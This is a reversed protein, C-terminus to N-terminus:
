ILLQILRPFPLIVPSITLCEILRVTPHFTCCLASPLLCNKLESWDHIASLCAQLSDLTDTSNIFSYLKVDDAFLKLNVSSPIINCYLYYLFCLVWFVARHCEVLYMVPLLHVIVLRSLSCPFSKFSFM